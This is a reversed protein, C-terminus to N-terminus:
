RSAVTRLTVPRGLRASGAQGNLTAKIGRKDRLAKRGTINLRVTITGSKRPGLYFPADGIARSVTRRGLKIKASLSLGGKCTGSGDNALVVKADKGGAVLILTGVLRLSCTGNAETTGPSNPGPLVQGSESGGSHGGSGETNPEKSPIEPEEPPTQDAPAGENVILASRRGSDYDYSGVAVCAELAPCSVANLARYGPAEADAPMSDIVESHSWADASFVAVLERKSTRNGATNVTGVAVCSYINEICSVGNLWTEENALVGGAPLPVEAAQAWIGGEETAVMLRMKFNEDHFYGVGECDGVAPCDIAKLRNGVVTTTLSANPPPAIGTAQDFVASGSQAVALPAVYHPSTPTPPEPVYAGGAVCEEAAPCSVAALFPARTVASPESTVEEAVQWAGSNSRTVSMAAEPNGASPLHYGGIAVCPGSPPCDLSRLNAAQSESASNGSAADAPLEVEVGRQWVGAQEVLTMPRVDQSGESYPTVVYKGAAICSGAGFCKVADLLGEEHSEADPPLSVAEAHGWTGDSENIVAAHETYSGDWFHGVAVCSGPAYCSVAELEFGGVANAPGAIKVSNWSAAAASAPFLLLLLGIAFAVPRSTRFPKLPLASGVTPRLLGCLLLL